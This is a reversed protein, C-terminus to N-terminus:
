SDINQNQQLKEICDKLSQLDQQLVNWIIRTNIDFYAHAIMDRMGAIAKWPIDPYQDRLIKPIQKTAEGIILINHIVAELTRQDQTLEEYSFGDTYDQIKNISTLIDTLYLSLKRSM